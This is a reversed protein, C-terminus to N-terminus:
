SERKIREELLRNEQLFTIADGVGRDLYESLTEHSPAFLAVMARWINQSCVRFSHGAVVYSLSLWSKDAPCIDQLHGSFPSVCLTRGDPYIPMNVTMGGDIYKQGRFTPVRFGCYVPIYCSCLLAEILEEDSRFDTLLVNKGDSVRTVSVYLKQSALRYSGAPVYRQLEGRLYSLVDFGPTLAGLPRKQVVDVFDRLMQVADGLKNPMCVIAAAAIAGASAGGWRNVKSVVHQGHTLLGKAVGLHYVALFGCGAFSINIKEPLSLDQCSPPREVLATTSQIRGTCSKYPAIEPPLRPTNVAGEHNKTNSKTMTRVIRSICRGRSVNRLNSLNVVRAAIVGHVMPQQLVSM